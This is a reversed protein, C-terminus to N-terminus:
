PSCAAEGAGVPVRLWNRPPPLSCSYADDYPCYPNHTLSFDM